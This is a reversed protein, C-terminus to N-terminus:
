GHRVCVLPHTKTTTSVSRWLVLEDDHFRTLSSKACVMMRKLLSERVYLLQTCLVFADADEEQRDHSTREKKDVTEETAKGWEQHAQCVM